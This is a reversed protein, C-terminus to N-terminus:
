NAWILNNEKANIIYNDIQQITFKQMNTNGDVFKKYWLVTENIAEDISFTTKWGLYKNAKSSDITLSPSEYLDNSNKEIEFDINSNWKEIIISVLDKVSIHKQNVSPGFNWAGSFKKKELYMKAALWLIGSLPELVYQWPRVFNPNRIRINQHNCISRISDPIIRDKAWDGGGIVNGARATAIETESKNNSFFSNRYASTVLEASGKSASYPDYGGMPDDELHPSYHIKNDYCKDSTMIVCSKISECNRIAELINVTGIINIEFTDVPREYSARVLSQAALHFVFDPKHSNISDFLKKKDRIDAVIHTLENQLNLSEFLSPKTPPELSYGIIKAGLLKLWLTLWAGQFGTHGTILVTKERFIKHFGDLIM